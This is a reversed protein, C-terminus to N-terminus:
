VNEDLLIGSEVFNNLKSVLESAVENKWFYTKGSGWVGSLMLIEGNRNDQNFYSTDRELLYEKIDHQNAM